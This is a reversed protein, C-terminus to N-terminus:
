SWNTLGVNQMSTFCSILGLANINVRGWEKKKNSGLRFCWFIQSYSDGQHLLYIYVCHDKESFSLIDCLNSTFM